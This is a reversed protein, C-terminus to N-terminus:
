KGDALFAAQIPGMKRYGAENLHLKDNVYYLQYNFENVGLLEFQDLIPVSYHSCCEKQAQVYESFNHGALNTATSFPNYGDERSFFRFSTFFYIEANPNKELLTKICYNIGGCQTYLKKEDFGDLATYDSWSGLAQSNTFDNTSAWLVYIDHVGADRVQQQLTYGQQKAFGAGGVGYTTVVSHLENAWIQKAADAEKNVSLSGGFVAISKGYNKHGKYMGTKTQPVLVKPTHDGMYGHAATKIARKAATIEDSTVGEPVYSNDDISKGSLVEYWTAAAIYRGFRPDLHYGDRTLETDRLMGRVGQISKGVPIILDIGADTAARTSANIIANHMKQTDNDYNVFEKHEANKSYAWTQHFVVTASPAVGKVWDVLFKLQSYSDALGSVGSAQQVSIYDWQEDAIGEILRKGYVINRQGDLGIKRYEYEAKDAKINEAHRDISCGPIYINGIIMKVDGAKAIPYLQHEIADESFSNGIALIRIIGDESAMATMTTVILAAICIIIRKM